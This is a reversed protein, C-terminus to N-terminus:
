GRGEATTVLVYLHSVNLEVDCVRPEMYGCLNWISEVIQFYLVLDIGVLCQTTM